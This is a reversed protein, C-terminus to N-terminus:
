GTGSRILAALETLYKELLNAYASFEAVDLWEDPGHLGGSMPRAVLMPIGKATFFRGDNGGPTGQFKAELGLEDKLTKGYLELFPHDPNTFSVKSQLLIQIECNPAAEHIKKLVEEPDTKETFRIDLTASAEDPVQNIAQGGSIVGINLTDAWSEQKIEPFLLRIHNLAEILKHIASEGEWPRSAHARKGKSSLKLHLLGKNKVIVQDPSNGGDPIIALKTKYGIENVLYGVGDAGGVEEDTSLMLGLSVPLPKQVFHRMLLILVAAGSKMDCAGRGFLRGDRLTPDFLNEQAPVVDLHGCLLVDPETTDQTLVVISPKGRSEYQKITVPLDSFLAAVFQVAQKLQDPQDTTTRMKILQSTLDILKKQDLSAM